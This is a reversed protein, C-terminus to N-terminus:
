VRFRVEFWRFVGFWYKWNSSHHHYRQTEISLCILDISLSSSTRSPTLNFLLHRNRSSRITIPRCSNRGFITPSQSPFGSSRCRRRDSFIRRRLSFCSTIFANKRCIGSSQQCLKWQLHDTWFDM